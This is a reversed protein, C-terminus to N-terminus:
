NQATSSQPVTGGEPESPNPNVDTRPDQAPEQGSQSSLSPPGDLTEQHFPEPDMENFEYPSNEFPDFEEDVEFDNAEAYSEYEEPQNDQIAKLVLDRLDDRIPDGAFTVPVVVPTPDPYEKGPDRQKKPPAKPM